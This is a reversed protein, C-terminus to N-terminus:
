VCLYVCCSFWESICLPISRRRHYQNAKGWSLGSSVLQTLGNVEQLERDGAHFMFIITSHTEERLSIISAAFPCSTWLSVTVESSLRESGNKVGARTRSSTQTHASIHACMVGYVVQVTTPKCTCLLFQICEHM